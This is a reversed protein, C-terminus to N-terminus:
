SCVRARQGEQEQLFSISSKGDKEALCRKYAVFGKRCEKKVTNMSGEDKSPCYGADELGTEKCSSVSPHAVGQCRYANWMYCYLNSSPTPNKSDCGVVQSYLNTSRLGQVPEDTINELKEDIFYPSLSQSKNVGELSQEPADRVVVTKGFLKISTCPEEACPTFCEAEQTSLELKQMCVIIIFPSIDDIGFRSSYIDCKTASCIFITPYWPSKIM